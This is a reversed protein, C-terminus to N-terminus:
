WHNFDSISDNFNSVESFYPKSFEAELVKYWSNGFNVLLGNTKKAHLKALAAIKNQEMRDKQEPSLQGDIPSKLQHDPSLQGNTTSITEIAKPKKPPTNQCCNFETVIVHLSKQNQLCIIIWTDSVFLSIICSNVKFFKFIKEYYM